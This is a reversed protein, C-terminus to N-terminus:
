PLLSDCPRHFGVLFQEGLVTSGNSCFKGSHRKELLLPSGTSGREEVNFLPLTMCQTNLSDRNRSLAQLAGSMIVCVTHVGPIGACPSKFAPFRFTYLINGCKYSTHLFSLSHKFHLVRLSYVINLLFSSTNSRLVGSFCVIYYLCANM